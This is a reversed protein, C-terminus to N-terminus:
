PNNLIIFFCCNFIVCIRHSNNNKYNRSIMHRFSYLRIEREIVYFYYPYFDSTSNKIRNPLFHSWMNKDFRNLQNICLFVIKANNLMAYRYWQQRFSSRYVLFNFVLLWIYKCTLQKTICIMQDIFLYTRKAICWRVCKIRNRLAITFHQFIGSISLLAQHRWFYLHAM